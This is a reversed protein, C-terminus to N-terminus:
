TLHQQTTRERSEATTAFGDCYPTDVLELQITQRNCKQAWKDAQICPAVFWDPSEAVKMLIGVNGGGGVQTVLM